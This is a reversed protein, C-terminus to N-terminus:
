RGVREVGDLVTIRPREEATFREARLAEIAGARAAADLSPNQEVAERAARYDDIRQQWAARQRDLEELRDAAETGFSRERLARIEVSSTGGARMRAEEQMARLPALAEARAARVPEPLGDELAAARREREAVDLSPDAFIRARELAARETAEEDAFFARSAEPGLTRERLAHLLDLRATTDPVQIAARARRRYALYRDLLGIAEPVAGDPLRRRTEAALRARARGPGDEAALYYDFFRRTERTVALRGSEDVVLSGDPATGSLSPPLHARGAVPGGQVADRVPPAAALSVVAAEPRPSAARRGRWVLVGALAAALM